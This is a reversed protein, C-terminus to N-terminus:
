IMLKGKRKYIRGLALAKDVDKKSYYQLVYDITSMPHERLFKRIDSPVEVKEEPKSEEVFSNDFLSEEKTGKNGENLWDIDDPEEYTNDFLDDGDSIDEDYQGDEFVTGDPSDYSDDFLNNTDLEEDDGDVEEFGEDFEKLEEPIGYGDDTDEYYQFGDDVDDTDQVEEIGSQVVNLGDSVSECEEVFVGNSCYGDEELQPEEYGAQTGEEEFLDDADIYESQDPDVEDEYYGEEEADAFEEEDIDDLDETGTTDEINGADELYEVDELYTGHSQYEDEEDSLYEDQEESFEDPSSGIDDDQVTEEEAYVDYDTYSEDEEYTEDTADPKEIDPASEGCSMKMGQVMQMFLSAGAGVNGEEVLPESEEDNWIDDEGEDIVDDVYTPTIEEETGRSYGQIELMREKEEKMFERFFEKRLDEVRMYGTSTIQLYFDINAQLSDLNGKVRVVDAM